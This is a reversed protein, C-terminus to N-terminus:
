RAEADQLHYATLDSRLPPLVQQQWMRTSRYVIRGGGVLHNHNAESSACTYHFTSKSLVNELREHSQNSDDSAFEHSIGVHMWMWQIDTM